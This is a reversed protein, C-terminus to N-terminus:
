LDHRLVKNVSGGNPISHGSAFQPLLTNWGSHGPSTFCSSLSHAAFCARRLSISSAIHKKHTLDKKDVSLTNCKMRNSHKGDVRENREEREVEVSMAAVEEEAMRQM